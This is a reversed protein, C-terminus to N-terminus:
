PAAATQRLMWSSYIRRLTTGSYAERWLKVVADVVVELM